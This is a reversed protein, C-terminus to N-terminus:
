LVIRDSGYLVPYCYTDISNIVWCSIFINYTMPLTGTYSVCLSLYSVTLSLRTIIDAIGRFSLLPRRRCLVILSPCTLLPFNFLHMNFLHPCQIKNSVTFPQVCYYTPCLLISSGNYKPCKNQKVFIGEM